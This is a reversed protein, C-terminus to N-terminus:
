CYSFWFCNSYQNIKLAIYHSEKYERLNVSSFSIPLLTNSTFLFKYPPPRSSYRRVFSLFDHLMEPFCVNQGNHSKFNEINQQCDYDVTILNRTSQYNKGDEESYSKVEDEPYDLIVGFLVVTFISAIVGM